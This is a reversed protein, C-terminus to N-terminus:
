SNTDGKQPVRPGELQKERAVIHVEYPTSGSPGTERHNDTVRHPVDAAPGSLDTLSQWRDLTPRVKGEKLDFQYGVFNFVQKPDLELKEMNLLWGLDQCIAVLTQTHKLCTQHSRARVLWNDIYQHIRVGRQLAMLKVEKTM